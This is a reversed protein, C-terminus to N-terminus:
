DALVPVHAVVFKAGGERVVGTWSRGEALVPSGHLDLKRGVRTPDPSAIVVRDTTAVVVYSSASVDQAEGAAQGALGTDGPVELGRRVLAQAAVHEAVSLARRSETARFSADSQALSVAAVAVLVISVIALQLALLQGALSVRRRM